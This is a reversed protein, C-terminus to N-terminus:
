KQDIWQDFISAYECVVIFTNIEQKFFSLQISEHLVVLINNFLTKGRQDHRIEDIACLLDASGFFLYVFSHM